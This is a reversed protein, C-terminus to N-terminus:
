PDYYQARAPPPPPSPLLSPPRRSDLENSSGRTRSKSHEKSAAALAQIEPVHTPKVQNATTANLKRGLTPKPRPKSLTSALKAQRPVVRPSALAGPWLNCRRKIPGAPESQDMRNRTHQATRTTNANANSHDQSSLFTRSRPRSCGATIARLPGEDLQLPQVNPPLWYSSGQHYWQRKPGARAAVRHCPIDGPESWDGRSGRIRGEQCSPSVREPELDVGHPHCTAPLVKSPGTRADPPLLILGAHDCHVALRPHEM